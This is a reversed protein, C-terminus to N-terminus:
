QTGGMESTDSRESREQSREAACDGATCAFSTADSADNNRPQGAKPQRAPRFGRRSPTEKDRFVSLCRGIFHSCYQGGGRGEPKVLTESTMINVDDLSLQLVDRGQVLTQSSTHGFNPLLAGFVTQRYVYIENAM